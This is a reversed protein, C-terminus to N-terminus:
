GITLTLGGAPNSVEAVPIEKITFDEKMTKNQTTLVQDTFMPIVEYDGEYYDPEGAIVVSGIITKSDKTEIQGGILPSAWTIVGSIIGDLLEM